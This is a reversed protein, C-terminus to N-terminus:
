YRPFNRSIRELEGEIEEGKEDEVGTRWRRVPRSGEM